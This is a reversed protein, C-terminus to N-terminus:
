PPYGEMLDELQLGGDLVPADVEDPDIMDTTADADEVFHAPRATLPGVPERVQPPLRRAVEWYWELFGLPHYSYVVGDEPLGARRAVPGTWWLSPRVQEDYVQKVEPLQYLDEDWFGDLWEARHRVATRRLIKRRPDNRFFRGVEGVSIRGDPPKGNEARDFLEILQAHRCIRSDRGAEHITWAGPDVPGTIEFESFIAFHVEPARAHLPGGQGVRAIWDGAEVAIDLRLVEHPSLATGAVRARQFWPPGEDLETPQETHFYLSYFPLLARGHPVTHRLLVFGTSGIGSDAGIRAAVIRGPIPAVVKTGIEAELHVGGHWMLAGGVPGCPFRGAGRETSAYDEATVPTGTEGPGLSGRAVPFTVRGRPRQLMRSFSWPGPDWKAGTVHYHGIFGRFGSPAEITQTWPEGGGPHLPSAWPIDLVRSLAAGLATVATYQEDTFAYALVTVGHVRCAVTERDRYGEGPKAPNARNQIEIGISVDNVGAAHFACEAVDLTQFITGDVDVLFHASLGHQDHLM